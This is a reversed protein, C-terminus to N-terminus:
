FDCFRRYKSVPLSTMLVFFFYLLTKDYQIIKVGWKTNRKTADSQRNERLKEMEEESVSQFKNSILTNKSNAESLVKEMAAVNKEPEDSVAADKNSFSDDMEEYLFAFEEYNDEMDFSGYEEM